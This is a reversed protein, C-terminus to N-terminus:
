RSSPSPGPTYEMDEVSDSFTLRSENEESSRLPIVTRSTSALPSTSPNIEPTVNGSTNVIPSTIADAEISVQINPSQTPTISGSNSVVPSIETDKFYRM